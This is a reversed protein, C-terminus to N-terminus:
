ERSGATNRGAPSAGEARRLWAEVEPAYTYLFRIVRQQDWVPHRGFVTSGAYVLNGVWCFPQTGPNRGFLTRGRPLGQEDLLRLEEERSVFTAVPTHFTVGHRAYFDRFWELAPASQEVFYPTLPSSGDAAHSLGHDLCYRLTAAHMSLKCSLCWVFRSRWRRLQEVLLDHLLSDFLERTSGQAHLVRHPYRGMLVRAGPAAGGRNVVGHGTHWTLLHVREFTELLKVAAATSDVGGSYMLAVEENM